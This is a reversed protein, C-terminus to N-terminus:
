GGFGGGDHVSIGADTNPACEGTAGGDPAVCLGSVCTEDRDCSEGQAHRLRCKGTHCEAPSGEACPRTFDCYNGSFEACDDDKNCGEGGCTPASSCTTPGPEPTTGVHEDSTGCVSMAAVASISVLLLPFLRM